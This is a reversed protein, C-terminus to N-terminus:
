ELTGISLEEWLQELTVVVVVDDRKHCEHDWFERIDDDSM